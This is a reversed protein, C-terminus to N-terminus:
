INTLAEDLTDLWSGLIGLENAGQALIFSLEFLKFLAARDKEELREFAKATICNKLLEIPNFAPADHLALNWIVGKITKIEQKFYDLAAIEGVTYNVVNDKAAQALSEAIEKNLEM